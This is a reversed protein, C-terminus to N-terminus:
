QRDSPIPCVTLGSACLCQTALFPSTFAHGNLHLFRLFKLKGRPAGGRARLGSWAGSPVVAGDAQRSDTMSTTNVRGGGTKECDVDITDGREEKEEVCCGSAPPLVAGADGIAWSLLAPADGMVTHPSNAAGLGAVSRSRARLMSSEEEEVVIAEVANEGTARRGVEADDGQRSRYTPSQRRDIAVARGHGTASGTGRARAACKVKRPVRPV